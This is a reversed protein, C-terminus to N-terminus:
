SLYQLKRSFYSSKENELEIQTSIETLNAKLKQIQYNKLSIEKEIEDIKSLIEKKSQLSQKQFVLNKKTEIGQLSNM